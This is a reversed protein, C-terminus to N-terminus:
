MDCTVYQADDTFTAGLHMPPQRPSKLPQRHLRPERERLVVQGAAHPVQAVCLPQVHLCQVQGGVPGMWAARRQDVLGNPTPDPLPGGHCGLAPQMFGMREVQVTTHRHPEPQIIPNM